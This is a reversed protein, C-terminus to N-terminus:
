CRTFLITHLSLESGLSPLGTMDLIRVDKPAFVVAVIKTILRLALGYQLLILDNHFQFGSYEGCGELCVAPTPVAEGTETGM